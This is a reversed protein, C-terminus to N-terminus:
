NWPPRGGAAWRALARGDILRLPQDLSANAVTADRTFCSTTVIIGLQCRHYDRYTGNVEYITPAGVRKTPAYKKCQIAVRHGSHLTVLVDLARDNSGGQVVASAVGPDRRALDAVAHEFQTPELALYGALTHGYARRPQPLQITRAGGRARSLHQAWRRGHHRAAYTGGAAVALISVTIVLGPLADLLLWYILGGLALEGARARLRRTRANM